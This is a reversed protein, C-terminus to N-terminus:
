NFEAQTLHATLNFPFLSWYILDADLKQNKNTTNPKLSRRNDYTKSSKLM